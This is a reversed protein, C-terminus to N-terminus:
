SSSPGSFFRKRDKMGRTVQEVIWSLGDDTYVTHANKATFALTEGNLPPLYWSRTALVLREAAENELTDSDLGFDSRKRIRDARRDNHKRDLKRLDPHDDGVVEVYYPQKEDDLLPKGTAPHELEIITTREAAKAVSLQSLDLM